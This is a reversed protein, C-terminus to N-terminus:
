PASSPSTSSSTPLSDETTSQVTGPLGVANSLRTSSEDDEIRESQIWNRGPSLERGPVVLRPVLIVNSETHQPLRSIWRPPKPMSMLTSESARGSPAHARVSM